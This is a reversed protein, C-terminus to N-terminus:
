MLGGFFCFLLASNHWQVRKTIIGFGSRPKRPSKRGSRRTVLSPAGTTILCRSNTARSCTVTRNPKSSAACTPSPPKSSTTSKPSSTGMPATAPSKWPGASPTQHHQHCPTNTHTDTHPYLTDLTFLLIAPEGQKHLRSFILYGFSIYLTSYYYFGSDIFTIAPPLFLLLLFVSSLLFSLPRM